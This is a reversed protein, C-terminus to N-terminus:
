AAVPMRADDVIISITSHVFVCTFKKWVLQITTSSFIERLTIRRTALGTQVADQGRTRIAAGQSAQRLQLPM